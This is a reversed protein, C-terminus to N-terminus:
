FLLCIGLYGKVTGKFNSTYTFMCFLVSINLILQQESATEAVYIIVPFLKSCVLRFVIFTVEWVPPQDNLSFADFHLPFLGLM